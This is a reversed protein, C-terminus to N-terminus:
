VEDETATGFIESLKYDQASGEAIISKDLESYYWERAFSYFDGGITKIILAVIAILICIVLQATILVQSNHTKKPKPQQEEEQSEVDNEDAVAHSYEPESVNQWGDEYTIENTFNEEKM